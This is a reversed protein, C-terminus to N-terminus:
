IFPDLNHKLNLSTWENNIISYNLMENSFTGNEFVGGYVLMSNEYVVATHDRRSIVNLGKTKVISYEKSNTDFVILENSCERIQRKSNYM